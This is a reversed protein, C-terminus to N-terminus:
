TSSIVYPTRGGAFSSAFFRNFVINYESVNRFVWSHLGDRDENSLTVLKGDGAFSVDDTLFAPLKTTAGSLFFSM